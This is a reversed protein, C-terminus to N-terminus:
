FDILCSIGLDEIVVGSSRLSIASNQLIRGSADGYPGYIPDDIIPYGAAKLHLRIQHTRGTEPICKVLTKGNEPENAPLIRTLAPKAGHLEYGCEFVFGKKRRVPQDICIEESLEGQVVAHYWKEVRNEEFYSRIKVAWERNRAFLVLGSTVADLRHVPYLSDYGREHLLYMLTNKYYRGGQHMPLPAPKNVALWNRTEDVVHINGAVSPEKVAPSYHSIKQHPLLKDSARMPGDRDQIWGNELRNEWVSVPLYPFRESFFDLVSKGADSPKVTITRTLEYPARVVVESSKSSEKNLITMLTTTGNVSLGSHM